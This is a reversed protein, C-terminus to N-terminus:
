AAASRRRRTFVITGATLVLLVMAMLGWESITPIDQAARYQHITPTSIGSGSAVFRLLVVDKRTLMGLDYAVTDGANDLQFSNLGVWTLKPDNYLAETLDELPRLFDTIAYFVDTGTIPGMPDGFDDAEGPPFGTGTWDLWAHEVDAWSNGTEDTRASVYVEVAAVGIFNGDVDTWFASGVIPAGAANFCGWVSEGDELPIGGAWHIISVTGGGGVPTHSTISPNGLQNDIGGTVAGSGVVIKTLDHVQGGTNNTVKEQVDWAVAPNSAVVLASITVVALWVNGIRRSM